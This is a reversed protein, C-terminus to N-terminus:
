QAILSLLDLEARRCWAWSRDWGRGGGLGGALAGAAANALAEVGPRRALGL